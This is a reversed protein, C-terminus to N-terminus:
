NPYRGGNKRDKAVVDMCYPCPTMKGYEPHTWEAARTRDSWSLSYSNPIEDSPIGCLTGRGRFSKDRYWQNGRQPRAQKLIHYIM